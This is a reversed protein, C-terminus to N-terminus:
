KLQLQRQIKKIYSNEFAVNDVFQRDVIVQDNGVKLQAANKQFPAEVQPAKGSAGYWIVKKSDTQKSCAVLLPILLIAITKM